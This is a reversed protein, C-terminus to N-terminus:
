MVKTPMGAPDLALPKMYISSGDWDSDVTAVALTQPTGPGAQGPQLSKQILSNNRGVYTMGLNRISKKIGQNCPLTILGRKRNRWKGFLCLGSGQKMNYVCDLKKLCSLEVAQARCSCELAPPNGANAKCSPSLTDVMLAVTTETFESQAELSPNGIVYM